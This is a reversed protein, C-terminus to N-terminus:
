GRARWQNKKLMGGGLHASLLTEISICADSSDPCKQVVKGGWDVWLCCSNQDAEEVASNQGNLVACFRFRISSKGTLNIDSLVIAHIGFCTKM